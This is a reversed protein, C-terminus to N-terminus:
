PPWEVRFPALTSAFEPTGPLPANRLATIFEEPPAYDHASVYHAVLEPCVYLLRGAPVGFNGSGHANECFQCTHYGAAVPWNLAEVCASWGKAHRTLLAQDEPSVHGKPYPKESDLWGVARVYEGAAIQTKQGLDEYWTM